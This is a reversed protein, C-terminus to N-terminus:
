GRVGVSPTLPEHGSKVPDGNINQLISKLLQERELRQQEVPDIVPQTPVAAGRIPSQMALDPREPILTDLGFLKRLGSSLDTM